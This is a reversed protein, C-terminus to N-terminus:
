FVIEVMSCESCNVQNYKNIIILKQRSKLEHHHDIGFKQGRHAETPNTFNGAAVSIPRRIQSRIKHGSGSWDTGPNHGIERDLGVRKWM